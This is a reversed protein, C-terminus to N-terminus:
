PAEGSERLLSRAHEACAHPNILVPDKYSSCQMIGDGDGMYVDCEQTHACPDLEGDTFVAYVIGVAILVLTAVAALPIYDIAKDILSEYADNMRNLM